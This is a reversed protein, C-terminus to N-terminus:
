DGFDCHIEDLAQFIDADLESDCIAPVGVLDDLSRDEAQRLKLLAFAPPLREDTNVEDRRVALLKLIDVLDNLGEVSGKLDLLVGSVLVLILELLQLFGKGLGAKVCAQDGETFVLLFLPM